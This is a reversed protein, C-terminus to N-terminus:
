LHLLGVVFYFALVTAIVLLYATFIARMLGEARLGDPVPHAPRGRARM